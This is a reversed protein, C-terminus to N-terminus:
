SDGTIIKQRMERYSSTFYMQNQSDRHDFGFARRSVAIVPPSQIRKAIGMGTYLGWWKELDYIFDKANTFIENILGAECGIEKELTGAIYWNLIDEPTARNWREVFARFLYDHYPYVMPDGKGDEISQELSLEASAVINFVENPIVNGQYIKENLYHGLEYVQYKWLDGIAALFGSLDGYLTSYGVTMESKNANCTFVSEFAAAVGALVRASRDRAQINEQILSTLKLKKQFGGKEDYVDTQSIQRVTFDVADQIPMVAYLCGLNNALQLALDRTTKSNYQSPMNILLVKSPEMISAYLAASVASDIGGSVGIVVRDRKISALFKKICYSLSEYVSSITNDDPVPVPPLGLGGESLDIDFFRIKQSFPECYVVIDGDRNYVTSCGDFSYITKGNNQIGVANIYILPVGIEATQRSFLRNRKLNKGLTYPSSSINLFLDKVGAKYLLAMPDVPYDECWGDECLMCGISFKKGKITIELPKLMEELRSGEEMSLKVMSYFHRDDEFERYNPHLTKIRYPYIFNEGGLIKGDQAVFCANYKRVRGDDGKKNWDAAVNGFIVCIGESAAIIKRGFSECDKIFTEQEWMDGLLYGPVALEPFIVMDANAQRSDEITKLILDTNLDPRGPIVEIQGLAIRVM